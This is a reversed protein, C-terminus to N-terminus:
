SAVARTWRGCTTTTEEPTGRLVVLRSLIRHPPRRNGADLPGVERRDAQGTSVVTYRTHPRTNGVRFALTGNQAASVADPGAEDISGLVESAVQFATGM